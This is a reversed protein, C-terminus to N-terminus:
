HCSVKDTVTITNGDWTFIIEGPGHQPGSAHATITSTGHADVSGSTASLVATGTVHATWTLPQDSIDHLTLQTDPSTCTLTVSTPSVTLRAASMAQTPTATASVPPPVFQGGPTITPTPKRSTTATAATGTTAQSITPGTGPSSSLQHLAFALTGSCTGILLAGVLGIVWIRRDRPWLTGFLASNQRFQNVRAGLAAIFAQANLLLASRGAPKMEPETPFEENAQSVVPFPMAAQPWVDQAAVPPAPPAFSASAPEPPVPALQPAIEELRRLARALRDVQVGVGADGLARDLPHPGRDPSPRLRQRQAVTRLTRVTRTLVQVEHEFDDLAEGDGALWEPGTAAAFEAIRTLLTDLTINPLQDSLSTLEADRSRWMTAPFGARVLADGINNTATQLETLLSRAERQKARVADYQQEPPKGFPVDQPWDSVPM